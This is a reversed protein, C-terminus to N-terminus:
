KESEIYDRASKRLLSLDYKLRRHPNGLAEYANNIQKFEEESGGKDPHKELFLENFRTKVEEDSVEPSIGLIAYYNGRIAVM